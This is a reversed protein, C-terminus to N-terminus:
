IFCIVSQNQFNKLKADVLRAHINQNQLLRKAATVQNEPIFFVVEQHEVQVKLPGNECWLWFVFSVGSSSDFVEKSLIFGTDTVM